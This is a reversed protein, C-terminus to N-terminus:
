PVQYRHRRQSKHESRYHHSSLTCLSIHRAAGPNDPHRGIVLEPASPTRSTTSVM